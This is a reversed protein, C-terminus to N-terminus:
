RLGKGFTLSARLSQSLNGMLAREMHRVEQFMQFTSHTQQHAMAMMQRTEQGLRQLKVKLKELEASQTADAVVLQRNIAEELAKISAEIYTQAYKAAILEQYRRIVGEAAATNGASTTTALIKYVPLDTANLFALTETLDVENYANRNAINQAIKEMKDRVMARFSKSQISGLTPNLCEDPGTKDCRWIPLQINDGADGVGVLTRLDIDTSALLRPVPDQGASGGTPLIVTGLMSMLIMRREDDIGNLKKLAKWVLNGSPIKDALAPSRRRAESLAEEAKPRDMVKMWADTIDEFINQDAGFRKAADQRGRDWADPLAANVIGKAAECSDINLRNAHQATAQLAQMVNQCTPCLNQIALNFSYGLANSGINRLMSVFRDKNIFSMGGAYLDIGGCGAKWTPATVSALQYTRRPARMFVSGGSYINMTQGQIVSPDSINYQANVSDFLEQMTMAAASSACVALSLGAVWRKFRFMRRM